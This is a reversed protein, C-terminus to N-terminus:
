KIFKGFHLGANEYIKRIGQTGNNFELVASAVGIEIINRSVYADKPCKKWILANLSENNNQTVGDLCKSLLAKSSLDKFIPEVEKKIAVALKVHDKHKKKIDKQYKCWSDIIKPCYRLRTEADDFSTNHM